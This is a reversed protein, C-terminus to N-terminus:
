VLGRVSAESLHSVSSKKIVRSGPEIGLHVAEAICIAQGSLRRLAYVLMLIATHVAPVFGHLCTPLLVMLIYYKHASKHM